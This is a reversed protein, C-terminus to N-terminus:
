ASLSPAAGPRIRLLSLTRADAVGAFCRDIAESFVAPSRSCLSFLTMSSRFKLWDPYGFIAEPNPDTLDLILRTCEVLRSGLVDHQLYREAQPLSSIGFREAMLSNGLGRMQPFIFWM